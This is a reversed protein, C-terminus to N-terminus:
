LFTRIVTRTPQGAPFDCWRTPEKFADNIIPNDVASSPASSMLEDADL